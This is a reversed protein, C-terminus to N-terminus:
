QFYGKEKLSVFSDVCRDKYMLTAEKVMRLSVIDVRKAPVTKRGDEKVTFFELQELNLEYNEM